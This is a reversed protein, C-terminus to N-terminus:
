ADTGQLTVAIQSEVESPSLQEGLRCYDVASSKQLWQRSSVPVANNLQLSSVCSKSRQVPPSHACMCVLEGLPTGQVTTTRINSNGHV